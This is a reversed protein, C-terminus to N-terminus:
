SFLQSRLAQVSRDAIRTKKRADKMSRVWEYPDEPMDPHRVGLQTAARRLFKVNKEPIAVGKETACELEKFAEVLQNNAVLSEILLGYQDGEPTLKLSDVQERKLDLAKSVNDTRIFMRILAKYTKTDPALDFTKFSEFVNMASEVKLAESYVQLYTNLVHNTVKMSPNRQFESFALKSRKINMIRRYELPLTYIPNPARGYEIKDWLVDGQNEPSLSNSDINALYAKDKNYFAKESQKM